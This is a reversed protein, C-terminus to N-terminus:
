AGPFPPFARRIPISDAGRSRLVPHVLDDDFAADGHASRHLDGARLVGREGGHGGREEGLALVLDRVDGVEGVHAGHPAQERVHAALDAPAAVAPRHAHAHGRGQRGLRGVLEHLRHAGRHHDEPREERAPPPRADGQGAAAGDARAGDILVELAQRREARLELELVAVDRRARRAAPEPARGEREVARGDGAGLVHHHRGREGVALGEERVAGPLRLHRVQGVRQAPHARADLAVPRSDDADLADRRQPRHPVRHDGVPDLRARQEHRAGQGAAVDRPGVELRYPVGRLEWHNYKFGPSEERRDVKVRLRGSATTVDKLAAELPGLAAEVATREDETRFIPVIALQTPAVNPPLVLGSDDGHAMITAGVMRTSFGWSTGWPHKRVNDRDLFEIGASRAFNQGLMHSTGAQLARKDRMMAEIAHTYNAGPFTEAPSKAGSIVPIALWDEAVQRYAELGTAVEAAAEEETAHFTHAEQWLFEATRLFLRTRLEWRVVNNWLNMLVPLDRYSQIWDKVSDAIIAESTPRIALWETLPEGGAHTVWAVQPNFGEVHEAEKELLSRPVFLPFYVNDHGTAKIHRDLEDRMSEWIAFGYPRIVMCGRVPSYDALQAKLVVDNYWGPFDESQRTISSVFGAKAM